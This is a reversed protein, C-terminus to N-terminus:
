GSAFTGLKGPPLASPFNSLAPPFTGSVVGRWLTASSIPVLHPILQAQRIFGTDPLSDFSALLCVSKQTETPSRTATHDSM